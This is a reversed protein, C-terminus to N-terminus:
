GFAELFLPLFAGLPDSIHGRFSGDAVLAGVSVSFGIRIM